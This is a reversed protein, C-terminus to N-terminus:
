KNIYGIGPHRRLPLPSGAELTEILPRRWSSLRAAKGSEFFGQLPLVFFYLDYRLTPAAGAAQSAGQRLSDPTQNQNQTPNQQRDAQGNRRQITYTKKKLEKSSTGTTTSPQPAATYLPMTSPSKRNPQPPQISSPM